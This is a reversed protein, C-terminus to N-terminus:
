AQVAQFSTPNAEVDEHYRADGFKVLGGDM